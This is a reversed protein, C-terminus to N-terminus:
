GIFSLVNPIIVYAGCEVRCQLKAMASVNDMNQGFQESIKSKWIALELVTIADHLEYFALESKITCFYDDLAVYDVSPIGRIMEHINAQWQRTILQELRAPINCRVLFNFTRLARESTGNGWLDRLSEGTVFEEIEDCFQVKLVPNMWYDCIFADPHIEEVSSPITIHRLLPCNAFAEQRIYKLGEPLYVYRLADCGWFAMKDITKIKPPIRISQLSRCNMFAAGGLEELSDPLEVSELRLCCRFAFDGIVKVSSPINIHSLVKCLGFTSDGISELGEPLEVTKLNSRCQFISVLARIRKVSPDFTLVGDTYHFRVIKNGGDAANIAEDNGNVIIGNAALPPPPVEDNDHDEM